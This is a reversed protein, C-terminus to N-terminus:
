VAELRFPMIKFSPYTKNKEVATITEITDGFYDLMVAHTSGFPFITVNGSRM